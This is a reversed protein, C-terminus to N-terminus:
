WGPPIPATPWVGGQNMIQQNNRNVEEATVFQPVAVPQPPNPAYAPKPAIKGGGILENSVEELMQLAAKTLMARAVGADESAEIHASLEVEPKVNAYQGGGYEPGPITRGVRVTIKEIRM